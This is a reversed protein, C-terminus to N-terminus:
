RDNTTDKLAAILEARPILLPLKKLPKPVAFLVQSKSRLLVSSTPARHIRYGLELLRIQENRTFYSNLSELGDCACGLHLGAKHAKKVIRDLAPFDEFITPPSDGTADAWKATMGPKFPGRGDKDQYRLIM